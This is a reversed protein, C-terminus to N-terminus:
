EFLDARDTLVQPLARMIETLHHRMAKDAAEADQADIAAMIAEHQTIIRLMSTRDLLTLHCVRDMHCKIDVVTQWALEADAGAALAAHFREDHEQFTAHDNDRAARRQATIMPGISSRTLSDFRECARRVIATELAERAFRVQMMQRVSIKVVVTGRQPLVRVLGLKALAIMAERAPQRSVGYRLAVENESLSKGPPLELTVIARRLAQEIQQAASDSTPQLRSASATASKM